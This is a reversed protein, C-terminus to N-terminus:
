MIYIYIYKYIYIHKFVENKARGSHKQSAILSSNINLVLFTLAGSICTVSELRLQVLTNFCEKHVRMCWYYHRSEFAQSASGEATTDADLCWQKM